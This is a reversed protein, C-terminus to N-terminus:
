RASAQEFVSPSLSLQTPLRFCPTRTGQNSCHAYALAQRQVKCVFDNAGALKVWNGQVTVGNNLNATLM